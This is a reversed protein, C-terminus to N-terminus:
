RLILARPIEACAHVCVISCPYSAMGSRRNRGDVLPTGDAARSYKELKDEETEGETDDRDRRIECRLLVYPVTRRPAHRAREVEVGRREESRSANMPLEVKAAIVATTAAFTTRTAYM